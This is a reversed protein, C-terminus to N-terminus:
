NPDTKQAKGITYTSTSFFNTKAYKNSMKVTHRIDFNQINREHSELVLFFVIIVASQSINKKFFWKPDHHQALTCFPDSTNWQQDLPMMLFFFLSEKEQTRKWLLESVSCFMICRSFCDRIFERQSGVWVTMKIHSVSRTLHLQKKSHFMKNQEVKWQVPHNMLWAVSSLPIYLSNTWSFIGEYIKYSTATKVKLSVKWKRM